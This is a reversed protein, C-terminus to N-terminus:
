RSASISGGTAVVEVWRGAKRSYIENDYMAECYVTPLYFRGLYAANLLIRYTKKNNKRLDFYSYVRDDRIDQYRPKDGIKQSEVLDMRTNRIEWGSPFIQTLAMEKYERRIGPHTVQVEVMFDTGQEIQSPNMRNGNIDLYSVKMYLDKESNVSNGVLPIGELQVKVFLTRDGTNVIKVTGKADGKIGMDIQSIASSTNVKKSGKENLDYTFKVQEGTGTTSVFKGIALLSYATTQTSYWRSSGLNDSIEEMINKAMVKKKMLVLTELIMAQDRESSGYSYSLERYKDVKTAANTIMKNAVEKKGALQYAAALRWLSATNLNKM